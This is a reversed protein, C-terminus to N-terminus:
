ETGAGAHEEKWLRISSVAIRGGQAALRFDAGGNQRNAFRADSVKVKSTKWGGQHGCRIAPASKYAGDLTAEADWSDYQPVLAEFGEDWYTFEVLVAQNGEWLYPDAVNFYLYGAQPHDTGVGERGGLTQDRVTGDTVERLLWLGSDVGESGFTSTVQTADRFERGIDSPPRPRSKPYRLPISEDARKGQHFLDAYQRTLAIYQRGYERSHCISTGEHMENWTEILVIRVDRNLVENWSSRYFRGDERDRIPTNRGPVALDNYGPGIQGVQGFVQPGNLAAGWATTGDTVASWSDDRIIYPRRGHFDRAFRRYTEDFVTQDHAGAFASVYLVVIPRGELTAWHRPPVRYFFDRITRYFIDQGRDKRLDLNESAGHYGPLLTTTDYFLGVKPTPQKAKQQTDLAQCLPGLGHVSFSVGPLSYRDVVGWYVPLIFDIGADACDEVQTAHWAPDHYSVRDPEPFHDQLTDHGDGSRFHEGPHDYWYFYHTGVVRQDAGFPQVDGMQEPTWQALVAPALHLILVVVVPKGCNM